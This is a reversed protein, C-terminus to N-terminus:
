ENNKEENMKAADDLLSDLDVGILKKEVPGLMKALANVAALFNNVQEDEDRTDQDPKSDEFWQVRMVVKFPEEELPNTPPCAEAIVDLLAQVLRQQDKGEIAAMVEFLDSEQAIEYLRDIDEKAVPDRTTSLMGDHLFSLHIFFDRIHEKDTDTM